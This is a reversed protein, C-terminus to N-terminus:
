QLAVLIPIRDRGSKLSRLAKGIVAGFSRAPDSAKMAYGLTASTTLLDGVGISEYDADVKCYVKGVLAIPLMDKNGLKRGLVLGPKLNGDGSVVGAVRKDYPSTSQELKGFDNFVMVMGAEIKEASAIEFDEACDANAIIIDGANGDITVTDNGNQDRMHLKCDNPDVEFSYKRTKECIGLLNPLSTPSRRDIGWGGAWLAKAVVSGANGDITVTDNGNQDRMHLKCDNPDVEFSYKRTKECIGLLNPLSTPSRRDIGWGGAWLAKAVVSGAGGDIKVTDNGNQDRMHLKCDNPDVEFSYKRTKECIGLLNPLSTPSRRDIGWGEIWLSKATIKDASIDAM